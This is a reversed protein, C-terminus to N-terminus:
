VECACVSDCTNETAAICEQTNPDVCTRFGQSACHDPCASCGCDTGGRVVNMEGDNLNAITEKNLKLKKNLSEM